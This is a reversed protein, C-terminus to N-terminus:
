REKLLLRQLAQRSIGLYASAKTKNGKFMAAAKEVIVMEVKKLDLGSPPLVISGPDFYSNHLTPREAVNAKLFQLHEPRIEADDYWLVVREITNQLERVNGPWSYNKLSEMATKQISEFRSKKQDAFRKLFM